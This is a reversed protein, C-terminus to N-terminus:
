GSLAKVLSQEYAWKVPCLKKAIDYAMTYYNALGQFEMSYTM